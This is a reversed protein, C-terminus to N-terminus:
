PVKSLTIMEDDSFISSYWAFNSLYGTFLDAVTTSSSGLVMNAANFSGSWTGLGTVTTEPIGDVFLKLEDNTASYNIGFHHWEPWALGQDVNYVLPSNISKDTGGAEYAANFRYATTDFELDIFNSGDAQFKFVQAMTTGELVAHDTAVWISMTGEATASAPEAAVLDIYSASGDFRSCYGEDPARFGRFTLSKDIGSSTGNYVNPGVDYVITGEEESLPWIGVINADGTIRKLKQIYPTLQVSKRM